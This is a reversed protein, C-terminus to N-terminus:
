QLSEGLKTLLGHWVLPGGVEAFVTAGGDFTIMHRPRGRESLGGDKWCAEITELRVAEATQSSGEYAMQGIARITEASGMTEGYRQSCVGCVCILALTSSTVARTPYALTCAREQIRDAARRTGTCCQVRDSSIANTAYDGGGATARGM